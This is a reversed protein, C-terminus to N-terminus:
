KIDNQSYIEAKSFIRSGPAIDGKVWTSPGIFSNSGITTGVNISSNIGTQVNDGIIAGLKRRKTDTDGIKINEEDLRLNAIKTGAGLNCNEGIISDGVYNLHPVATGNMIISNKVEVAAGIHCNNGIASSGRIFCNPGITCNQGIIVPGVIYSGSRIVTGHGVAVAGKLIVNPEIEGYNQPELHASIKENANLLDWPYSLDFWQRINNVWIKEGQDILMQISDTLEYEGRISKPTAQIAKFIQPSFKYLGANALHTCPSSTKEYIKTVRGEKEEVVGLGTVDPLEVLSMAMGSLEMLNRVDRSDAIIDGNTVVFDDKIVGAVMRLADATGLPQKQYIYRIEINWNHGDDFYDRIKDDRYGVIINFINIGAQKLEIILHELIPKNVLTLMVKPRNFTLPRMRSGEGAALIVAQKTSM